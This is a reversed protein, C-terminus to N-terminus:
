MVLPHDAAKVIEKGLDLLKQRAEELAQQPNGTNEVQLQLEFKQFPADIRVTVILHQRSESGDGEIKVVVIKVNNVM